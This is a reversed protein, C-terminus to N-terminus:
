GNKKWAKVTRESIGLMKHYLSDGKNRDVTVVFVHGSVRYLVRWVIAKIQLEVTMKQAELM